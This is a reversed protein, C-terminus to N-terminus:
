AACDLGLRRDRHAPHHLVNDKGAGALGRLEVAIGGTALGTRRLDKIVAACTYVCLYLADKM